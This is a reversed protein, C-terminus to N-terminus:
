SKKEGEKVVEELVRILDKITYLPVDRELICNKLETSLTEIKERLLPAVYAAM